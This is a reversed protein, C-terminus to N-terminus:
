VIRGTTVKEILRYLAKSPTFDDTIVVENTTGEEMESKPKVARAVYSRLTNRFMVIRWGNDLLKVADDVPNTM